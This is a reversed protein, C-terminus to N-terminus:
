NYEGDQLKMSQVWKRAQAPDRLDIIKVRGTDKGNEFIKGKIYRGNDKVSTGSETVGATQEPKGILKIEAAMNQFQILLVTEFARM